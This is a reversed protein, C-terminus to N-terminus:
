PIDPDEDVQRRYDAIAQQWEEFTPDDKFIGASKLWPNDPVYLTRLEAGSALRQQVARRLAELAEDKTMGEASMGLAGWTPRYGSGAVPEILVSIEM